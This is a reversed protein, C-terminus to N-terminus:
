RLPLSRAVNKAHFLNKCNSQKQHHKRARYKRGRMMMMTVMMVMVVCLAIGAWILVRARGPRM